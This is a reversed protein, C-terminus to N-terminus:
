QTGTQREEMQIGNEEELGDEEREERERRGKGEEEEREGGEARERGRQRCLSAQIQSENPLWELHVHQQHVSAHTRTQLLLGRPVSQRPHARFRAGADARAAAVRCLHDPTSSEVM